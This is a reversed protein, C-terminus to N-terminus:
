GTSARSLKPTSPALMGAMMRAITPIAQYPM